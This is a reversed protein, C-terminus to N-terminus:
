FGTGGYLEQRVTDTMIRLDLKLSFNEVYHLDIALRARLAAPTHSFHRGSSQALGTIGPRVTHRLHYEPVLEDFPIGDAIPDIPLYRPGVLSMDGRVVNWFQPLEDVSTRRLIAGIRTLRGDAGLTRFKVVKFVRGNKGWRYSHFFLPGAGDFKILAAVALLLPSVVLLISISGVLDLARKVSFSVIKPNESRIAAVVFGAAVLVKSLDGPVKTLHYSWEEQWREREVLPM